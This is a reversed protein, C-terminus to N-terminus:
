VSFKSIDTQWPIFLAAIYGYSVIICLECSVFFQITNNRQICSMDGVQICLCIKHVRFRLPVNRATFIIGFSCYTFCVKFNSIDNTLVKWNYWSFSCQKNKVYAECM